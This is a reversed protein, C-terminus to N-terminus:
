REGAAVAPMFRGELWRGPPAEWGAAELARQGVLDVLELSHLAYEALCIADPAEAGLSLERGGPASPGYHHRVYAGADDKWEDRTRAGGELIGAKWTTAAIWADRSANRSALRWAREVVGGPKGMGFIARPPFPRSGWTGGLNPEEFVAALADENVAARSVVDPEFSYAACEGYGLLRTHLGEGRMIAWGLKAGVDWALVTVPLPRLLMRAVVPVGPCRPCKPPRKPQGKVHPGPMRGCGVCPADKSAKWKSRKGM